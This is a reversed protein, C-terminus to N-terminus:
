FSINSSSTTQEPVANINTKYLLISHLEYYFM